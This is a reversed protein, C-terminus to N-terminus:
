LVNCGFVSYDGASLLQISAPDADGGAVNRLQDASLTKLIEKKLTLKKGV